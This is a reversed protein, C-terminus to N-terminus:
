AQSYYVTALGKVVRWHRRFDNSAVSVPPREPGFVKEFTIYDSQQVPASPNTWDYLPISMDHNLSDKVDDAISVALSQNTAYVDVFLPYSISYLGGGLEELVDDPGDGLTIAVVNPEIKEGNEDPQIETFTVATTGFNIPSNVWGLTTLRAEIYACLTKHTHRYRFRM